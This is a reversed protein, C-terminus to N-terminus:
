YQKVEGLRSRSTLRGAIVLWGACLRYRLIKEAINRHRITVEGLWMAHFM